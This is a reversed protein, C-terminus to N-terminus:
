SSPAAREAVIVPRDTRSLLSNTTAGLVLSGLESLRRSGIVILDADWERAALAIEHAADPNMLLSQGETGIGLENLRGAVEAILRSSEEETESYPMQDDPLLHRAHLVLVRAGSPRALEATVEVAHPMEEGGAIALLIRGIERDGEPVRDSVVLVPIGSKAIVRHSVSGLYLGRLDSLGRSGVAILDAGLEVATSAILEAVEDPQGARWESRTRVGAAELPDVVTKMQAMAASASLDGDFIGLVIVQAKTSRAVRAVLRATAPRQKSPDFAFLIREIHQGKM